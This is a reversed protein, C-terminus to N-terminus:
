RIGLPDNSGGSSGGSIIGIQRNIADLRNGINKNLNSSLSNLADLSITSWDIGGSDIGM